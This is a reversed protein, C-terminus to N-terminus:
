LNFIEAVFLMKGVGRMYCVLLRFVFVGNALSGEIPEDCCCLAVRVGVERGLRYAVWEHSLSPSISRVRRM